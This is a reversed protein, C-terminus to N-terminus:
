RLPLVWRVNGEEHAIVLTVSAPDEALRLELYGATEIARGELAADIAVLTIAVSPEAYIAVVLEDFAYAELTASGLKTAGVVRGSAPDRISPASDAALRIRRVGERSPLFAELAARSPSRHLRLAVDAAAHGDLEGRLLRALDAESPPDAAPGDLADLTGGSLLAMGRRAQTIALEVADEDDAGERLSAARLLVRRARSVVRDRDVARDVLDLEALAIGMAAAELVTSAPADEACADRAIREFARLLLAGDAADFLDNM